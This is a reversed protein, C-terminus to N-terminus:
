KPNSLGFGGVHTRSPHWTRSSIYGQIVYDVLLNQGATQGVSLINLGVKGFKNQGTM